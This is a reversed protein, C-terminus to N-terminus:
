ESKMGPFAEEIKKNAQIQAMRRMLSKHNMTAYEIEVWEDVLKGIEKPKIKLDECAPDQAVGKDIAECLGLRIDYLIDAMDDGTEAYQNVILNELNVTDNLVSFVLQTVLQDRKKKSWPRKIKEVKTKTQKQKTSKKKTQKQKTSKKKEQKKVKKMEKEYKSVNDIDHEIMYNYMELMEKPKIDVNGGDVLGEIIALRCKNTDNISYTNIEEMGKMLDFVDQTGLKDIDGQKLNIEATQKGVNELNNLYTKEDVTVQQVRNNNNAFSITPVSTIVMSGIILSLGLTKIQKLM